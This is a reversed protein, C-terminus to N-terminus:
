KKLIGEAILTERIKRDKNLISRIQKDSYIKKQKHKLKAKEAELLYDRIEESIPTIKKGGWEVLYFARFVADHGVHEKSLGSGHESQADSQKRGGAKLREIMKGAHLMAKVTILDLQPYPKDGAIATMKLIPFFEHIFQNPDDDFDVGPELLWEIDGPEDEVPLGRLFEYVDEKKRSSETLRRLDKVIHSFLGSPVGELSKKKVAVNYADTLDKLERIADLLLYFKEISLNDM